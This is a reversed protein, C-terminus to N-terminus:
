SGGRAHARATTDGLGLPTGHAGNRAEKHRYGIGYIAELTHGQEIKLRCAVAQCDIADDVCIRPFEEPHPDRCASNKM